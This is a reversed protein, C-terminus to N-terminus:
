QINSNFVVQFQFCILIGKNACLAGLQRYLDITNWQTNYFCLQIDQWSSQISTAVRLAVDKAHQAHEENCLQQILHRFQALWLMCWQQGQQAAVSAQVKECFKRQTM